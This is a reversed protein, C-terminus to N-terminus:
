QALAKGVIEAVDRSLGKADRIRELQARAKAQRSADITEAARVAAEATRAAPAHASPRM